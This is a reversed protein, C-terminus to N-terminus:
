TVQLLHLLILQEPFLDPLQVGAHHLTAGNLRTGTSLWAHSALTSAM